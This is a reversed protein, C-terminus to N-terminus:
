QENILNEAFDMAKEESKYHASNTSFGVHGGYNWKEFFLFEHNKSLEVPYCNESLMPDNKANILLTPVSIKNLFQLSSNKKYYDEAGAFGHVPATLSDDFEMITSAQMVREIDFADPFMKNKELAKKKLNNLFRKQYLVNHPKMIELCSDYLQIPVSFTSAGCIQRPLNDSFEGLYKLMMNGGLSFGVLFITDYTKGAHLIVNNLDGTEGSHYFRPLRNMEGSCGRFNWALADWKNDLFIKVIGLVYARDSSGELGHNIIVLKKSEKKYWDLDLFDGDALELRERKPKTIKVKRFLAPYITELHRNFLFFPPRYTKNETYPM